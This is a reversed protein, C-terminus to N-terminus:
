APPRTSRRLERLQAAVIRRDSQREFMRRDLRLAMHAKRGPANIITVTDTAATDGICYSSFDVVPWERHAPVDITRDYHVQGTIIDVYKSNRVPRRGRPRKSEDLAGLGAARRDSMFFMIALDIPDDPYRAHALAAVDLHLHPPTM